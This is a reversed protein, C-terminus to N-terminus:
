MSHNVILSQGQTILASHCEYKLYVLQQYKYTLIYLNNSHALQFVSIASMLMKVHQGPCTSLNVHAHQCTSMKVHAPLCTLMHLNNFHVLQFVFTLSM